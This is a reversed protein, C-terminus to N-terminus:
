TAAQAYSVTSRNLPPFILEEPEVIEMRQNVLVTVASEEVVAGSFRLELESGPWMDTVNLYEDTLAVIGIYQKVIAGPFVTMDPVSEYLWVVQGRLLLEAIVRQGTPAEKLEKKEEVMKETPSILLSYYLSHRTLDRRYGRPPSTEPITVIRTQFPEGEEFEGVELIVSPVGVLGNIRAPPRNTKVIPTM